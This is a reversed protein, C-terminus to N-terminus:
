EMLKHNMREKEDTERKAKKESARIDAKIWYEAVKECDCRMPMSRWARIADLVFVGEYYLTKGCWKCGGTCTASLLLM